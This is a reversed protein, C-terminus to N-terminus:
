LARGYTQPARARLHSARSPSEPRAHRSPEQLLRESNTDLAVGGAAEVPGRPFLM